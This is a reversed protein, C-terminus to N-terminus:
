RYVRMWDIDMETPRPSGGDPFYDLQITPYMAGPPLTGRDTSAFWQEGDLYGTMGQATWEVAYTHWRTIDVARTTYRQSSGYHLFFSVDKAASDTEAFDVQGGAPYAVESPWLLLVPHYQPDGASFRARLEWRGYRQSDAWAMGGTNGSSDGRIVLSGNEVTIAGPTRRGNGAHGAGDYKGWKDSMAGNFEDDGVLTWGKPAVAQASEGTAGGGAAGGASAHGGPVGGGPADGGAAGGRPAGHAAATGGAGTSSRDAHTAPPTTANPQRATSAVEAIAVPASPPSPSTTIPAPSRTSASSPASVGRSAPAVRRAPAPRGGSASHVVIALVTALIMIVAGVALPVLPLPRRGVPPATDFEVDTLDRYHRSSRVPPSGSPKRRM